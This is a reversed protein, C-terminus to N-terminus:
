VSRAERQTDREMTIENFMGEQQVILSGQKVLELMALFSVILNLKEEKPTSKSDERGRAFDSFSLAMNDRIRDILNEIMEELSVVKQVVTETPTQKKPLREIMDKMAVHLNATTISEHPSFTPEVERANNRPFIINIGFRERVYKGLRKIRKYLKLRRELNRIDGEEEETLKLSPLLLKSKILVLTSAIFLFSAVDRTPFESFDKVFDMYDDAVKALPIDGIFLKRKEVLDLLLDLPGEFVGTKVVYETAM